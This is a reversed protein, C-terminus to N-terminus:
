LHGRRKKELLHETFREGGKKSFSEGTGSVSGVIDKIADYLSGGADGEAPVELRLAKRLTEVAVSEATTGHLKARENLLDEIEPPLTITM